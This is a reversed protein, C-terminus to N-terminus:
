VKSRNKKVKTILIEINYAEIGANRGTNIDNELDGFYVIDQKSVEFWERIKILGEPDPKWHRVDERGVIFDFYNELGMLELSKIITKRTNLSLIALKTNAKISFQEKHKIFYVIEKVPTTDHINEMEYTRIIEFFKVLEEEDEKAVIESLCGSISRFSCSDGYKKYYREGLIVKLTPWDAVLNVITGDLDFVIVRKTRLFSFDDMM